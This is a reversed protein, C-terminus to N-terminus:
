SRLSPITKGAVWCRLPAVPQGQTSYVGTQRNGRQPRTRLDIRRLRPSPSPSFRFTLTIATGVSWAETSGEVTIVGLSNVTGGIVRGNANISAGRNADELSKSAQINEAVSVTANDAALLLEAVKARLTYDQYVPLAIAVLIGIIVIALMLEILTFGRHLQQGL